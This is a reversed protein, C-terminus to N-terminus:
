LCSYIGDIRCEGYSKVEVDEDVVMIYEKNMNLELQRKLLM